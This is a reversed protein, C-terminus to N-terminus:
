LTSRFPEEFLSDGTLRITRPDIQEVGPPEDHDVPDYYRIELEYPPGYAAFPEIEDTREVARAAGERVADVADDPDRHDAAERSRGGEHRDDRDGARVGAGRLRDRRRGLPVDDSARGAVLARCGFEGVFTGNLRYYAVSTSSYTHCLPAHHAGAMAHQGVFLVADHDDLECHPRGEDLYRAGAVDAERLRGSGHGDRVDVEADPHISRIGEVRANVERGLQDMAPAKRAEDDTRAHEFSAIGAVGELDALVFARVDAPSTRDYCSKPQRTAGGWETRGTRSGAPGCSV